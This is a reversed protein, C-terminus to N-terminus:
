VVPPYYLAWHVADRPRAVARAVPAKGPEAVASQGSTVTLSGHENVALVTGEFVSLRTGDDGVHVFFETGRVGAVTFPTRVELNAPRRSLFHAAGQLLGVASPANEKTEEVTITSNANLRLATQNRHLVEARSKALVRIADGACVPQNAAVAQWETEGAPRREVTGQVSVIKAVPSECGAPPQARVREGSAELAIAVVLLQLARRRAREIAEVRGTGVHAM